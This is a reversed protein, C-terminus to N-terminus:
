RSRSILTVRASACSWCTRHSGLMCHAPTLIPKFAVLIGTLRVAWAIDLSSLQQQGDPLWMGKGTNGRWLYLGWEEEHEEAEEGEVSETTDQEGDADSRRRAPSLGVGFAQKLQKLVIAVTAGDQLLVVKQETNAASQSSARGQSRGGAVGNVNTFSNLSNHASTSASGSAHRRRSGRYFATATYTFGDILLMRRKQPTRKFEIVFQAESLNYSGLTRENAEELWLGEEYDEEGDTVVRNAVPAASGHHRKHQGGGDSEESEDESTMLEANMPRHGCHSHSREKLAHASALLTGEDDSTDDVHQVCPHSRPQLPVFLSYGSFIMSRQDGEAEEVSKGDIPPASSASSSAFLFSNAITQKIATITASSPFHFHNYTKRQPFLVVFHQHQQSPPKASTTASPLAM